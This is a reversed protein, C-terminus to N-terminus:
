KYRWALRNNGNNNDQVAGVETAGVYPVQTILPQRLSLPCLVVSTCIVLSSPGEPRLQMAASVRTSYLYEGGAWPSIELCLQTAVLVQSYYLYEEGAGPPFRLLLGATVFRRIHLSGAFQPRRCPTVHCYSSSRFVLIGRRSSPPRRGHCSFGSIFM